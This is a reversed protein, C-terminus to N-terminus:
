DSKKEESKEEEQTAAPECKEADGGGTHTPTFEIGSEAESDSFTKMKPRKNLYENVFKNPFKEITNNFGEVDQNFLRIAASVNDELESIETMFSNMLESTKLEPYDEVGVRIGKMLDNISGEISALKTVDVKEGDLKEASERIATIKTLVDEEFAKHDKVVEELKPLTKVKQREQTIVTAWSRAVLNESTIIGNYITIVTLALAAVVVLVLILLGM